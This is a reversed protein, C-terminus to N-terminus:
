GKLAAEPDNASVKGAEIWAFRSLLAGVLFSIAAYERHGVSRLVLSVPGALLSALRMLVGSYGSRLPRDTAGGRHLEVWAGICTRVAAVALGIVNLAPLDFGLLELVAASSGLGAIGFHVPLIRRHSHWVPIATAGILVGTYTALVSGLVATVGGVTLQLSRAWSMPIGVYLLSRQPWEVHIALLTALAGFIALVWAGVSMPSQLKFIRLM